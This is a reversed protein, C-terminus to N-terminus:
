FPFTKKFPFILDLFFNPNQVEENTDEKLYNNEKQDEFMGIETIRSEEKREEEKVEEKQEERM